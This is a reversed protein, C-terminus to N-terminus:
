DLPGLQNWGPTVTNFYDVIKKNPGFPDDKSAYKRRMEEVPYNLLLDGRKHYKPDNSHYLATEFTAGTYYAYLEDHLVINEYEAESALEIPNLIRTIAHSLEHILVAPLQLPSSMADLTIGIVPRSHVLCESHDDLNTFLEIPIETLVTVEAVFGAAHAADRATSQRLERQKILRLRSQLAALSEDMAGPEDRIGWEDLIDAVRRRQMPSFSALSRSSLLHDAQSIGIIPIYDADVLEAPVVARGRVPATVRLDGIVDLLLKIRPESIAARVGKNTSLLRRTEDIVEQVQDM